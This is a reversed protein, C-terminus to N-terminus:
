ISIWVLIYVHQRKESHKHERGVYMRIYRARALGLGLLDTRAPPGDDQSCSNNSAWLIWYDIDM